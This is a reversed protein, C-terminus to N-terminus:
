ENEKFEKYYNCEEGEKVALCKCDGTESNYVGCKQCNAKNICNNRFGFECSNCLKETKIM